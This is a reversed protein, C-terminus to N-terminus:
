AASRVKPNQGNKNDLVERIIALLLQSTVPKEIFAVGGAIAGNKEISEQAYGSQYIIKMDPKHALILKALEQGGMVPMMIDTIVLDMNFNQFKLKELADVGNVACVVEYGSDTLLDHVVERLEEEDEVLLIKEHQSSKTVIKPVKVILEEPPAVQKFRIKFISGMGLKSEVEIKGSVGQLIGHVVALGLGTGKGVDKTTYFPEFIRAQTEASMGTGSDKVSILVIGGKFDESQFETTTDNAEVQVKVELKGGQPMADQANIVLNMIIQDLQTPDMNIFANEVLYTFQLDIVSTIVRRLMNEIEKLALVLNFVKPVISVRRSYTLLQRTLEVSRETSRIIGTVSDRIEKIPREPNKDIDELLKGALITIIGLKNNFDHAIGGAVQGIASMRASAVLESQQQTIKLNADTLESTRISIKEELKIADNKLEIAFQARNLATEAHTQILNLFDFDDDSPLRDHISTNIKSPVRFCMQISYTAPLTGHLPIFLLRDGTKTKEEGLIFQLLLQGELVDDGLFFVNKELSFTQLKELFSTGLPGCSYQKRIQPLEANSFDVITGEHLSFLDLMLQFAQESIILLEDSNIAQLSFKNLLHIRKIQNQLEGQTRFLVKETKFLQKLQDNLEKNQRMINQLDFNKVEDSM